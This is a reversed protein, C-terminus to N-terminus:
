VRVKCLCGHMHSNGQKRITSCATNVHHFHARLYFVRPCYIRVYAHVHVVHIAAPHNCATCSPFQLLCAVVIATHQSPSAVVVFRGPLCM